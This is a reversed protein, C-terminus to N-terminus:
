PRSNSNDFPLRIVNLPWEHGYDAALRTLAEMKADATVALVLEFDDIRHEDRLTAIGEFVAKPFPSEADCSTVLLYRREGLENGVM